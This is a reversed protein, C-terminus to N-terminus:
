RELEKLRKDYDEAGELVHLLRRIGSRLEDLGLGENFYHIYSVSNSLTVTLKLSVQCGVVPEVQIKELKLESM